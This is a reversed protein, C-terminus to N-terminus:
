GTACLLACLRLLSGGIALGASAACALTGPVYQPTATLWEHASYGAGRAGGAGPGKGVDGSGTKLTACLIMFGSCNAKPVSPPCVASSGNSGPDPTAGMRLQGGGDATFAVTMVCSGGKGSQALASANAPTQFLFRPPPWAPLSGRAKGVKDPFALVM